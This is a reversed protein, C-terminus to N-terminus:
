EELEKSLNEFMKDISSKAKYSNYKVKYASLTIKDSFTLEDKFKDYLKGTFENMNNDLKEWDSESYETYNTELDAIFEEYSNMYEQKTSPACSIISLTIVLVLIKFLSKM